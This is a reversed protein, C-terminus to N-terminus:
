RGRPGSPHGGSMRGAGGPGFGGNSPGAMRGPGIPASAGFGGRMSSGFGFNPSAYSRRPTFYFGIASPSYFPSGFPSQYIGTGPIFTFM